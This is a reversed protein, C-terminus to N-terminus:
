DKSLIDCGMKDKSEEVVYNNCRECKTWCDDSYDFGAQLLYTYNCNMEDCKKRGSEIDQTTFTVM